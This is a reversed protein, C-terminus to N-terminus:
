FECKCLRCWILLFLSLTRSIGRKRMLSSPLLRLPTTLSLSVVRSSTSSMRLLSSMTFGLMRLLRTVVLLRLLMLGDTLHTRTM